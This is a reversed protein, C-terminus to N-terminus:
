LNATDILQMALVSDPLVIGDRKLAAVNREYTNIFAEISEDSRKNRIYKRWSQHLLTLDDKKFAKDLVELLKDVGDDAFVDVDGIQAAVTVKDGVDQKKVDKLKDYLRYACEGGKLKARECAKKWIGVQFRWDEYATGEPDWTPPPLREHKDKFDSM